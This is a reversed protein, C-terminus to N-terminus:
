RRVGLPLKNFKGKFSKILEDRRKVKSKLEIAIKPNTKKKRQKTM